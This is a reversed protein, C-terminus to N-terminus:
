RAVTDSHSCRSYKESNQPPRWFTFATEGPGSISSSKAAFVNKLYPLAPQHKIQDYPAVLHDRGLAGARPVNADLTLGDGGDRRRSGEIVALRAPDDVGRAFDDYRAADVGM